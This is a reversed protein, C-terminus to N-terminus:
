KISHTSHHISHHQKSHKTSHERSPHSPLPAQSDNAMKIYIPADNTVCTEHSILPTYMCMCVWGVGKNIVVSGCGIDVTDVSCLIFMTSLHLSQPTHNDKVCMDHVCMDNIHFYIISWTGVHAGTLM